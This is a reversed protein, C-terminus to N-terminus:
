ATLPGLIRGKGDNEVVATWGNVTVPSAPAPNQEFKVQAAAIVNETMLSKASPTVSIPGMSHTADEM